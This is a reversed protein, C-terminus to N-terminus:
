VTFYTKNVQLNSAKMEKVYDDRRSPAGCNSVAWAVHKTKSRYIASYDRMLPKERTVLIGYPFFIDSDTRYSMSWNMTNQWNYHRYGFRSTHVPSELGFFMWVQDPHRMSRKIPPIHGLPRSMTFIIASSNNLHNLDTSMKCNTYFCSQELVNNAEPVSIWAPKNYWLITKRQSNSHQNTRNMKNKKTMQYKILLEKTDVLTRQYSDKSLSDNLQDEGKVRLKVEATLSSVAGFVGFYDTSGTMNFSVNIVVILILVLVFLLCITIKLAGLIRINGCLM